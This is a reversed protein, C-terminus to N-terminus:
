MKMINKLIFNLVRPAYRLSLQLQNIRLKDRSFITKEQRSDCQLEADTVIYVSSTHFSLRGM